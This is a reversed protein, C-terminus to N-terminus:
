TIKDLMGPGPGLTSPRGIRRNSKPSLGSRGIRLYTGHSERQVGVGCWTWLM